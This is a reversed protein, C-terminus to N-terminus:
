GGIIFEQFALALFVAILTTLAYLGSWPWQVGSCMCIAGLLIWGVVGTICLKFRM